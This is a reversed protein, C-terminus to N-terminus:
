SERNRTEKMERDNESTLECMDFFVKFIDEKKEVYEVSL